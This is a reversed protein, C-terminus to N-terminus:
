NTIPTVGTRAKLGMLTSPIPPTAFLGTSIHISRGPKPSLIKPLRRANRASSKQDSHEVLLEVGNGRVSDDGEVWLISLTIASVIGIVTLVGPALEEQRAEIIDGPVRKTLASDGHNQTHVTHCTKAISGLYHEMLAGDVHNQMSANTNVYGDSDYDIAALPSAFAFQHFPLSTVALYGVLAHLITM